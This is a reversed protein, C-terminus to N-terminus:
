SIVLIMVTSLCANPVTLLSGCHRPELGLEVALEGKRSIHLGPPLLNPGELLQTGAVWLSSRSQTRPERTQGLGVRALSLVQPTFWCILARERYRELLYKKFIMVM